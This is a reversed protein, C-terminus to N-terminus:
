QVQFQPKMKEFLALLGAIDPLEKPYQIDTTADDTSFSFPIQGQGIRPTTTTVSTEPYLKDMLSKSLISGGVGEIGGFINQMGSGILASKAAMDQNYKDGVEWQWKNKEEQAYTDLAGKLFRQREDYNRADAINLQTLSKQADRNAGVLAGLAEQSTTAAQKIGSQTAGLTEDIQSKYLDYAPSHTYGAMTQALNKAATASKPIQYDPRTGDISSGKLLQWLGTGAQLGAGILPILLPTM